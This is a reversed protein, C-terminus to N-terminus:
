PQPMVAADLTIGDVTINAATSTTSGIRLRDSGATWAGTNLSGFPTGFPATGEVLYAELVANGGTGLRQRLGVRYLTGTTLAASSGISTSGNRLTLIGTNRLVLNGVSTGANSVLVIRTDSSPLANVRLYLSLYLDASSTFSEELYANAESITASYSGALPSATELAVTGISRDAGDAPDVLSGSEFTMTKIPQSGGTPPSTPTSTATSTAAVPTNTATSTAAVPTSTATSTPTNTVGQPTNTATSTAAIPTNTPTRTPTATAPLPTGGLSLYNHLYRRSTNDSALIVLGTSNNVNQKTSTPNNVRPAAASGIFVDGKGEPFSISNISSSKYYVMGGSEPSTAFMYVRGNQEDLLVMPRTHGDRVRGVVHSEWDGNQSRVLLMVLPANESTLSTKIAAFVRGSGDTLLSKLNIHDDACLGTCGPGPLATQETQWTTDSASDLHVAFYMKDTNQNSWMVGIKDGQFAVVSSIDDSNVTNAATSSPIVFPTGWDTDSGLTRNIMVRSGEVYTVWLQGTSDKALVLTESKGRTVNTVPFGPDLTYTKTSTNYSYRYLRGWNSSTAEGGTTFVHSVVYLRQGDWLADAKGNNRDDIPVGTDVWTQTALNLRYIHHAQATDNYLSGWWIGDNWWLKSEPKEGTPASAGTTGFSPGLYGVDGAASAPNVPPLLLLGLV